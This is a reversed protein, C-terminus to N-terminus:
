ELTISSKLTFSLVKFSVLLSCLYLAVTKLCQVDPLVPWCDRLSHFSVFYARSNGWNLAKLFNGPQLAPSSSGLCLRTAGVTLSVSNPLWPPRPLQSQLASSWFCQQLCLLSRRLCLGLPTCLNGRSDEASAAAQDALEPRHQSGPFPADSLLLQFLRWLDSLALAALISFGRGVCPSLSSVWFPM